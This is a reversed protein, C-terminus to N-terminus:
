GIYSVQLIGKDAVDLTFNGDLDTISGNTTGKEVVNAGIVPEGTADVVTGTIKKRQQSVGPANKVTLIIDKDVVQYSVNTGKFVKHLVDNIDENSTKVTVTKNVDVLQSNYFFNFDTQSEILALVSSISQNSANLTLKAAQDSAFAMCTTMSLSLCTLKIARKSKGLM